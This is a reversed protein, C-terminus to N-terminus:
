EVVVGTITTVNEPPTVYMKKVWHTPKDALVTRVVVGKKNTVDTTAIKGECLALLTKAREAESTNNDVTATVPGYNITTTARSPMSRRSDHFPFSTDYHPVSVDLKCEGGIQLQVGGM